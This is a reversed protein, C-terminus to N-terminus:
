VVVEEQAPHKCLGGKRGLSRGKPFHTSVKCSLAIQVGRGFKTLAPWFIRIIVPDYVCLSLRHRQMKTENPFLTLFSM